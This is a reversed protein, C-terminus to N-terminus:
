LPNGSQQRPWSGRVQQVSMLSEQLKQVKRKCYEQGEQANVQPTGLVTRTSQHHKRFRTM